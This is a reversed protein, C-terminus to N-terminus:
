RWARARYSVSVAFAADLERGVLAPEDREPARQDDVRPDEQEVLRGGVDTDVAVAADLM